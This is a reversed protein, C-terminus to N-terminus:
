QPILNTSIPCGHMQGGGRDGHLVWSLNPRVFFHGSLRATFGGIVIVTPTQTTYIYM